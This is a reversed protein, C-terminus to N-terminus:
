NAAGPKANRLGTPNLVKAGTSIAASTPAPKLGDAGGVPSVNLRNPSTTALTPTVSAATGSAHSKGVVVMPKTGSDAGTANAKITPKSLAPDSNVGVRETRSGTPNHIFVRTKKTKFTTSSEDIAWAEVEHWGNTERTTDWIYSYPPYNSMSKFNSDVFFSAYANKMPHDFSLKIEAPGVLTAGVKPSSLYVPGRNSQDTSINTKDSGVLKGTRDFLRVEVENDGDKLDSLSVNFNTEGSDKTSTM